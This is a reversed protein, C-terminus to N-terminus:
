RIIGCCVELSRNIHHGSMLTSTLIAQTSSLASMRVHDLVELIYASSHSLRSGDDMDLCFTCRDATTVHITYVSNRRTKGGDFTITLHRCQALYKKASLSLKAAKNPILKSTLTSSSPPEYSNNLTSVMQKFEKSDVTSPPIGCCVIYQM